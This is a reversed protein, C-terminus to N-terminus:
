VGEWRAFGKHGDADSPIVPVPTQHGWCTISYRPYWTAGCAAGAKHLGLLHSLSKETHHMPWLSTVLRVRKLAPTRAGWSDNEPQFLTGRPRAGQIKPYNFDQHRISHNQGM